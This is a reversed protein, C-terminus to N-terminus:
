GMRDDEITRGAPVTIFLTMKSLSTQEDGVRIEVILKYDGAPVFLNQVLSSTLPLNILAVDTGVRFPCPQWLNKSNNKVTEKVLDLIASGMQNDHYACYDSIVNILFQKYGARYRYYLKVLVKVVDDTKILNCIWTLQKVRRSKFSLKCTSNSCYEKNVKCEM